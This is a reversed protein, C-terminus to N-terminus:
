LRWTRLLGELNLSPAFTSYFCLACLVVLWVCCHPYVSLLFTFTPIRVPLRSWSNIPGHDGSERVANALLNGEIMDAGGFDDNLNVAARPLNYAVNGRLTTRASVAQFLLSSQKQWMGLDHASNGEIVTDLPVDLSLGSPGNPHFASPLTRTGNENLRRDTRGWLVVASGGLWEFDNGRIVVDRNHGLLAVAIGDLRTFLCNTISTGVTGDVTVAAIYPLAWDGGSPLGHPELFSERADRLVLGSLSVGVVPADATGSLNFLVQHRTGVFSDNSSPLASGTGNTIYLLEGAEFDIFFEGPSDLEERVNEIWWEANANFGEAGQVVVLTNACM